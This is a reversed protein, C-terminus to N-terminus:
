KGEALKIAHDNIGNHKPLGIAPKASFVDAYDLYEFLIKTFAKDDYLSAMQAAQFPYIMTELAELNAIYVM